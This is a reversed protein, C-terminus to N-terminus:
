LLNVNGPAAAKVAAKLVDRFDMVRASPAYATPFLFGYTLILEPQWSRVVVGAVGQAVIPDALTVGIGQAVLQCASLGSSTEARITPPRGLRAFQEDVSHRLLTYPKLAVFPEEVIDEARIVRRKALRHGEPVALVASVRAFPESRVAPAELPLAALGLDFQQGAVWLAVDARSRIELSVRVSPHVEAFKALAAPFIGHGFYPQAVVRVWADSRARIDEAIRSVEDFGSLIRKTEEYFEIGQQTPILRRSQRLFLPFGLEDELMAILRSVQPQTRSIRVAAETVSGTEM